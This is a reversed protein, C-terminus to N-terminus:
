EAVAAATHSLVGNSNMVLYSCCNPNTQDCNFTGDDAHAQLIQINQPATKKADLTDNRDIRVNFTMLGLVVLGLLYFLANKIEVLNLLFFLVSLVVSFVREFCELM